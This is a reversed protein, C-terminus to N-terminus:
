PKQRLQRADHIITHYVATLDGEDEFSFYVTRERAPPAKEDGRVFYLVGGYLLTRLGYLYGAAFDSDTVDYPWDGTLFGDLAGLILLPM